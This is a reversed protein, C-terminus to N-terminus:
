SDFGVRLVIRKGMSFAWVVSSLPQDKNEAAAIDVHLMETESKM